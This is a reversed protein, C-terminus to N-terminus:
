IMAHAVDPLYWLEHGVMSCAVMWVGKWYSWGVNFSKCGLIYSKLVIKLCVTYGHCCSTIFVKGLSATSQDDFMNWSLDLSTLVTNIRIADCVDNVAEPSLGCKVLRLSTLVKNQRIMGRIM